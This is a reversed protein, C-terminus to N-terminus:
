VVESLGVRVTIELATMNELKGKDNYVNKLYPMDASSSM